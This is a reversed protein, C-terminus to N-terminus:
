AIKKLFLNNDFRYTITLNQTERMYSVIYPMMNGFTYNSGTTLTICFAGVICLIGKLPLGKIYIKEFM